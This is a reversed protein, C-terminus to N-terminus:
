KLNLWKLTVGVLFNGVAVAATWLAAFVLVGLITMMIQTMTENIKKCNFM